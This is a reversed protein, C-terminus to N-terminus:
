LRYFFRSKKQFFKKSPMYIASFAPSSRAMLEADDASLPQQKGTEDPAKRDDGSQLTCDGCGRLYKYPV